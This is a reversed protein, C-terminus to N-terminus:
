GKTQEETQRDRKRRESIMMMLAKKVRTCFILWKCVTKREEKNLALKKIETVNM